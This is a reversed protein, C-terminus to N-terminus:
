WSVYRTLAVSSQRLNKGKQKLIQVQLNQYYSYERWTM